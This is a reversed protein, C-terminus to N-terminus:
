RRSKQAESRAAAHNLIVGISGLPIGTIFAWLFLGQLSFEIPVVPSALVWWMTAICLLMMGIDELLLSKPYHDHRLPRM